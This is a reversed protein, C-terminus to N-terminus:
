QYKKLIILIELNKKIMDEIIEKLMDKERIIKIMKETRYQELGIEHNKNRNIKKDRIFEEIM